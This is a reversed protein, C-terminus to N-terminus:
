ISDGILDYKMYDYIIRNIISFFMVLWFMNGYANIYVTYGFLTTSTSHIIFLSLLLIPITTLESNYTYKNKLRLYKGTSVSKYIIYFLVYAIISFGILGGSMLLTQNGVHFDVLYLARSSFGLGIVPSEYFGQMVKAGRIHRVSTGGASIDGEAVLELTEVREFSKDIQVRFVSSINYLILFAVLGVGFISFIRKPIRSLSYLANLLIFISFAIIWGRTATIFISLSSLFIILYLYGKKFYVTRKLLYYFAFFLSLLIIWPGFIPRLMGSLYSASGVPIDLIKNPSIYQSISIGTLLMFLQGLINIFVGIFLLAALREIFKNGSVIRPLILFIPVLLILRLIQFYHRLGSEGAEEIGIVLGLVLLFVFYILYITVPKFFLFPIRKNKKLVAFKIYCLFIFIILVNIEIPGLSFVNETKGEFLGGLGAIISFFIAYYAVDNDNKIYYYSLLILFLIIVESLFNLVIFALFLWVLYTVIDKRFINKISRM